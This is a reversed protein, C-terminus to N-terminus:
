RASTHCRSCNTGTLKFAPKGADHCATCTAKRPTALEVVNAGGLETHCTTCALAKGDTGTAHRAHEFTARVSWPAKARAAERATAIGLRHCGSCSEIRPAPGKAPAHCGDGTCARHGRPTRLQSAPTRLVHCDTCAAQHKAHDLTAGFETREPPERDPALPRWPETANHCAGCIKPERAGFDNEHCKVCPAHGGVFVEGRADLPHCSGCPSTKVTEEHVGAHTFRIQPRAVDFRAPARDHCRTCSATTPFAVKGDHCAGVGCNKATPRPLQTDDTARIAGHCTGCDKGLPGRTAHKVHSFVSTVTNKVTALAPPEPKGIAQPHCGSCAAMAPGKGEAKSGDHCGRCRDHPTRKVKTAGLDHCVTCVVGAHQKHGFSINFDPDATYPPYFVAKSDEVHCSTCIPARDGFALKGPKAIPAPLHCGTFCGAHGPKGTLRGQKETHCRACALKEGTKVDLKRDHVLHDFGLSLLAIAVVLTRM